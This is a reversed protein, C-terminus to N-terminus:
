RVATETGLIIRAKRCWDCQEGPKDCENYGFENPNGHIYVIEELLEKILAERCDCAYHHTVCNKM